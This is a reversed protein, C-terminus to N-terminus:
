VMFRMYREHIEEVERREKWGWVEAGYGIITWVLTDYLWFRREWEKGWVRKGIGWVERMVFAAKKRGERVHAEQGGNVKLTYGLYKFEKVVELKKGKWKWDIKKKRGGEKRFRMIKTKGVNLELGKRVFYRELRSILVKIGDDDEAM